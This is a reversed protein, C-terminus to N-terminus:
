GRTTGLQFSVSVSNSTMDATFPPIGSDRSLARQVADDISPRGSSRTIMVQEIVGARTIILSVDMSLNNVTGQAALASNARRLAGSLARDTARMWEDYDAPQAQGGFSTQSFAPTPISVVAPALLLAATALFSILRM